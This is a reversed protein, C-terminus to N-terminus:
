IKHNVISQMMAKIREMNINPIENTIAQKLFWMFDKNNIIQTVEDKLDKFEGEGEIALYMNNQDAFNIDTTNLQNIGFM